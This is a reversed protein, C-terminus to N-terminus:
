TDPAPESLQSCLPLSTSRSAEHDARRHPVGRSRSFREQQRGACAHFECSVFRASFVEGQIARRGFAFEWGAASRHGLEHHSRLAAFSISIDMFCVVRIKRGQM